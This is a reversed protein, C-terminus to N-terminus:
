KLDSLILAIVGLLVISVFCTLNLQMTILQYGIGLAEAIM